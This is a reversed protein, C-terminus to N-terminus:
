EYAIFLWDNTVEPRLVTREQDVLVAASDNSFVPVLVQESDSEVGAAVSAQQSGILFFQGQAFVFGVLLCFALVCGAASLAYTHTVKAAIQQSVSATTIAEHLSIEQQRQVRLQAQRAQQEIQRIEVYGQLSDVAVYWRRDLQLAIVKKARALQTVYDSSYGFQEAAQSIKVYTKGNITLSSSM